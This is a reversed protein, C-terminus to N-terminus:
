TTWGSGKGGVFTNTNKNTNGALNLSIGVHCGLLKGVGSGLPRLGLGLVVLEAVVSPGTDALNLGAASLAAAVRLAVWRGARAVCSGRVGGGALCAPWLSTVGLTRGSWLVTRRLVLLILSFVETPRWFATYDM